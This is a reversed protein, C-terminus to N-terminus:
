ISRHISIVALTLIIITAFLIYDRSVIDLCNRYFKGSPSFGFLWNHSCVLAQLNESLMCSRYKNLINSGHSFASESAVTIIPISLVDRALKALIDYNNEHYKWYQLANRYGKDTEKLYLDLQTL